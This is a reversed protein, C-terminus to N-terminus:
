TPGQFFYIGYEHKLKNALWRVNDQICIDEPSFVFLASQQAHKGPTECHSLSSKPNWYTHLVYPLREVPLNCLADTTCDIIISLMQLYVALHKLDYADRNLVIFRNSTVGKM